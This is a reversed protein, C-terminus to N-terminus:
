RSPKRASFILPISEESLPQGSFSGYFRIDKYGCEGLLDEIQRKRLPFLKVVNKIEEDTEKIKLHTRFDIKNQSKHFDYFRQFKIEENEIAPLGEVQQDLIRDYNIMQVILHGGSKIVEKAMSFFSRIQLLDDLHVITNGFSVVTDFSNSEWKKSIDLMDMGFFNIGEMGEAKKRAYAIMEEDLDIADVQAGQEGLLMALNGTGGGVELIRIGEINGSIREIFKVQLPSPPFIYDYFPAISKYFSM